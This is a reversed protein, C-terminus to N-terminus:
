VQWRHPAPCAWEIPPPLSALGQSASTQADVARAERTREFHHGLPRPDPVGGGSAPYAAIAYAVRHLEAYWSTM